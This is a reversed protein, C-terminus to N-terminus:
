NARAKLYVDLKKRRRFFIIFLMRQRPVRGLAIIGERLAGPTGTSEKYGRSRADLRLVGLRRVQQADFVQLVSLSSSRRTHLSEGAAAVATRVVWLAGVIMRITCHCLRLFGM